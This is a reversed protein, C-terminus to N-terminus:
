ESTQCSELTGNSTNHEKIKKIFHDTLINFMDKFGDLIKELEKVDIQRQQLYGINYNFKHAIEHKLKVFPMEFSTKEIFNVFNNLDTLEVKKNLCTKIANPLEELNKLIYMSPILWYGWDEYFSISPKKYFAAELGSSGRITVVLSSKEIVEQTSISPHILEVNQIEKIKEYYDINRWGLMKMGPHEKVFLKYDVPLFKAINRIVFIQDTFLPAGIELVKEPEVHLPFYVYKENKEIKNKFNKEMYLERKKKKRLHSRGIGKLLVNKKTKGITNFNNQNENKVFPFQLLAKIKDEKKVGYDRDLNTKLFFRSPAYTKLFEQIENETKNKLNTGLKEQEYKYPVGEYVIYRDGFKITEIAVFKTKYKKVLLSLLYQYHQAVATSIIFDLNIENFISEFFKTEQELISLIEDYDFHHYTNFEKHFLRETYAVHSLVINHKEEISKLYEKNPKEKANIKNGFYWIKKFNVIKQEKMAKEIGTNTDVIAYLEFDTNEQLYKAVGLM